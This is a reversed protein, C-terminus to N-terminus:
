RAIELEALKAFPSSPDFPREPAKKNHPRAKKRGSKRPPVLTIKDGEIMARFGLSATIAVFAKRSSGALSILEASAEAQGKRTLKRIEAAIREAMDARLARPGLRRYGIAHYFGGAMSRVADIAVEGKGPVSPVTGTGSSLAWLIARLDLDRSSMMPKVFAGYFGLRVGLRALAKRGEGDLERMLRLCEEGLAVGLGETLQYAIGRAPGQLPAGALKVLPALGRAIWEAMWTELRRRVRATMDADLGDATLIEIQPALVSSGPVLRAILEGRWLIGLSADVRFQEPKDSTLARVRRVLEPTVAQRAASTLARELTQRSSRAPLFRFGLVQGVAEGEVVVEGDEAVHSAIEGRGKLGRVVTAARRDVFRQTLQEHLTDSLKDEIARAAAQLGAPDEVWDSRHSIYTWTRIHAIRTMLMDIDGDRRNLREISRMVWDQPLRGTPGMLHRYIHALLRVHHDHMVKRFDPVQCVEWLLRVADPHAALRAIEPDRVLDALSRHDSAMRARMLMGHESRQELSKLLYGPTKFDLQANRWMVAKVDSFSHNEIARAITDDFDQVTWTTGFTGDNIHRGARGAIQALEAASLNRPRAGDFKRTAAFAVHRVDMNLGMGIADTAVIHDVEGDQYMAVQANRARPSLAGLVVACGGRQRRLTEALEYVAAVSFAVIASRPPLRTIKRFGTYSLSSFRPRVVFEADPVLAKIVPRMTAAGMVMTEETGRARLLRDTFTHGREPDACLQIEDVALFAVPMELPMSETTCIFYRAGKPVIREEGTILAVQRPGKQAIVRDYIERALLRLPLGIMGSRHGLMREVALHTKGTNTPGLVATLRSPSPRLSM